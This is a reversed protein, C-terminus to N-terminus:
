FIPWRKKLEDSAQYVRPKFPKSPRHQMSMKGVTSTPKYIKASIVNSENFAATKQKPEREDM